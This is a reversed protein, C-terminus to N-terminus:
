FYLWHGKWVGSENVSITPAPVKIFSLLTLTYKLWKRKTKVRALDIDPSLYFQRQRKFYPIQVGEHERPNYKGGVMGDGGYGVALNLWGPIKLNPAFSKINFSAWYTQGNYDKLLKENWSEGLLGPRYQPFDTNHYSYKLQIRQEEWLLQQGIFLGSGATNAAVDSWSFGWGESMGDLLEIGMLYTFGLAGGAWASKKNSLGSWRYSEYGIKGLYYATMTHGVKDMQLWEDSDDFSHFGVSSYDNYWLQSLGAMSVTWLGAQTYFVGKLRKKHLTDPYNLLQGNAISVSM